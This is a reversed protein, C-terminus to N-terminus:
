SVGERGRALWNGLQERRREVRYLYSRWWVVRWHLHSLVWRSGQRAAQTAARTAGAPTVGMLCGGQRMMSLRGRSRDVEGDLCGFLVENHAELSGQEWLSHRM